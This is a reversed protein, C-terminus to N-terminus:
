EKIQFHKFLFKKVPTPFALETLQSINHWAMRSNEEVLPSPPGSLVTAHLHFHTFTHRFEDVIDFDYNAELEPMCWLGGWIGSPPRKELKIQQKDNLWLLYNQQRTPVSKKPKKHPYEATKGHIYALCDDKLPCLECQPKSRSCLSAGLDMMAQNFKGTDKLPTYRETLDWLEKGVSSQGYWGEVMFVRALVRKVNGDLIPTPEGRSLSLIAGATSRGIGPLSEVEELTKPFQGRHQEILTQACKHLNRARSYYGLGQWFHLVEDLDAEALQKLTKFRGMFKHYYPIVTKVQTQQLMIESVWVRYPTPNKQWPLDKRGHQEYFKLIRSAFKRPTIVSSM